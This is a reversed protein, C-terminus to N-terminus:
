GLWRKGSLVAGALLLSSAIREFIGVAKASFIGGPAFVVPFGFTTALPM